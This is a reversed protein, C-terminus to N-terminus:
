CLNQKSFRNIKTLWESLCHNSKRTSLEFFNSIWECSKGCFQKQCYMVNINEKYLLIIKKKDRVFSDDENLWCKLYNDFQKKKYVRIERDM